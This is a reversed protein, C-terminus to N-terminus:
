QSSHSNAYCNTHSNQQSIEEKVNGTESISSRILHLLIVKFSYTLITNEPVCRKDKSKHISTEGVWLLILMCLKTKIKFFREKVEQIVM